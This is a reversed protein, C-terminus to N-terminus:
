AQNKETKHEGDAFSYMTVNQKSDNELPNLLKM